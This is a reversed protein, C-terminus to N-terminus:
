SSRFLQSPLWCQLPWLRTLNTCTQCSKKCLCICSSLTTVTSTMANGALEQMDAEALYSLDMRNVPLGQLILTKRGKLRRGASTWWPMGKPTLCPMIGSATKDLERYVNQSLNLMRSFTTLLNRMRELLLAM